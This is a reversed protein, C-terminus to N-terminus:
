SLLLDDIRDVLAGASIEGSHVDIVRGDGDLFVTTPMAVAGFHQFLGGDPDRAIDYTVGTQQVVRLGDEPRDQLNVGLFAVQGDLDQSVREFGPMEALCPACWSAFFNVVLPQGEYDALSATSGDLMPLALAGASAGVTDIEPRNDSSTSRGAFVVVAFLLTVTIVGGAIGLRRNRAKVAARKRAARKRAARPGTDTGRAM